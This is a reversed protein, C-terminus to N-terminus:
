SLTETASSASAHLKIDIATVIDAVVIRDRGERKARYLAADVSAIVERVSLGHIPFAGVGVSITIMGLSKGQHLVTLERVNSRLREARSQAGKLDTGPLILVFEEGGFRCPIDEARTHRSLFGGVERLVSDGAEHGYTDNFSKFHDLDFMVVGVPQDGRAARRIERALSEELYRRNFLGTLVDKTSQSRLAEQLKLNAVSLGVQEAFTGALTLEAEGPLQGGTLVQFHLIGVVGGQSMIPVCFYTNQAPTAHQCQATRDGLEVLHRNGTRLAWCSDTEFTAAAPECGAWTGAVELINRSSNLLMLAGRFEPFVKPALGMVISFTEEMNRSSQLLKGMKALLATRGSRKTLEGVMLANQQNLEAQAHERERMEEKLRSNAAFVEATRQKIEDELIQQHGKQDDIDTCTGFWKVIAGKPSRIPLARTLHWRYTGDAARRFRCEMEYTEGTRVSYEWKKLFLPLDDPRVVSDWLRTGTQASDLGTYDHWRSNFYDILGDARATWIIQPIAEALTRFHSESERAVDLVAKQAALLRDLFATVIALILVLLTTISIAAIGLSSIGVAYSLDPTQESVAFTAAAMGTYHMIPIASGMVLASIIKRLSARKEDRVRFTLILAVLSIAIALAVSAAVVEWKYSIKAPVRMAAMGIYHMAAIGSGMFISGTLEQGIGMTPRSVVFLAVAAAMIAALLSLVVTPFDYLVPISMRFALMGIYHMAWIGLGMAVAGGALWFVRARRHAATVRGALDLAAYSAAVALVVSLTVLRHDYSGTM